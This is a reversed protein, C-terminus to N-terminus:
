APHVVADVDGVTGISPRMASQSDCAVGKIAAICPKVELSAWNWWCSAGVSLAFIASVSGSITRSFIAASMEAQSADFPCSILLAKESNACTQM